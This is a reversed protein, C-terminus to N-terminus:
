REAFLQEYSGASLRPLAGGSTYSFSREATRRRALRGREDFELLLYHDVGLSWGGMGFVAYIVVEYRYERRWYVIRREDASVHDPGGFALLVDAREARDRVLADLEAEPVRGRRHDWSKVGRRPYVLVCGAVLVLCALLAAARARVLPRM